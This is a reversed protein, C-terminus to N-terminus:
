SILGLERVTDLLQSRKIPKMLYSDCKAEYAEKIISKDSVATTMVIKCRKELPVGREEELARVLKLLEVGSVDPMMIDLCILDYPSDSELALRFREFGVRGNPAFECRGYGMLFGQFLMATLEDDEVILTLVVVCFGELELVM